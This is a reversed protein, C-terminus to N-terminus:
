TGGHGRVGPPAAELQPSADADLAFTIASHRLCHPSLQDWAQIGADRALRRVLEWRYGQRLRGGSATALLPGALQRADSRGGRRAPDPLPTWRPSRPRATSAAHVRPM